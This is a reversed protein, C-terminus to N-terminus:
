WRSASRRARARHVEGLEPAGAPYLGAGAEQEKGQALKVVAQPMRSTPRWRSKWSCTRAPMSRRSARVRCPHEALFQDLCCRAQDGEAGRRLGRVAPLGEARGTDEQIQDIRSMLGVIEFGPNRHYASAHSAGMNGLGVVLVKVKDAMRGEWDMTVTIRAATQAARM